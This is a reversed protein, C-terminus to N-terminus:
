DSSTNKIWLFVQVLEPKKCLGQVVHSCNLEVTMCEWWCREVGPQAHGGSPDSECWIHKVIM